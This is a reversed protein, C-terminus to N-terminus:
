CSYTPKKVKRKLITEKQVGTNTLEGETTATIDRSGEMSAERNMVVKM